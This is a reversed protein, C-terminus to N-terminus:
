LMAIKLFFYDIQWFGFVFMQEYNQPYHPYRVPSIKEYHKKSSKQSQKWKEPYSFYGCGFSSYLINKKHPSPPYNNKLCIKASKLLM